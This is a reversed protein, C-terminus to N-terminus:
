LREWTMNLKKLTKDIMEFQEDFTERHNRFPMLGLKIFEVAYSGGGDIGLSYVKKEGLMGLIQFAAEASFYRVKVIERRVPLYPGKKWTSCNYWYIKSQCSGFATETKILHPLTKWMVKNNEHLHWPCLINNSNVFIATTLVDADIFHTIDCKVLCAVHNLGFVNFDGKLESYKKFSPGKGLILWPKTHDYKIKRFYEM